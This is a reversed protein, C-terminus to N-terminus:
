RLERRIFLVYILGVVATVVLAVVVGFPTFDLTM